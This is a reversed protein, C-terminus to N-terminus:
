VLKEKKLRVKKCSHHQKNLIIHEDTLKNAKEVAIKNYLIDETM